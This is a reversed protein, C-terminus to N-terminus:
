QPESVKELRSALLSPFKKYWTVNLPSPHPLPRLHIIKRHGSLGSVLPISLVGEYREAGSWFRDMDEVVAASQNIKFWDFAETGLTFLEQGNWHDVLLSSIVPQFATKVTRSWSKNGFPKYPVANSFLLRQSLQLRQDATQADQSYFRRFAGNRVLTGAAGVLPEMLRIEDKGPDRGFFGWASELNGGFLLPEFLDRHFRQYVDADIKMTNQEYLNKATQAALEKLNNISTTKSTPNSSTM